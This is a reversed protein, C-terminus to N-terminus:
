TVPILSSIDVNISMSCIMDFVTDTIASRVSTALRVVACHDLIFFFDAFILSNNNQELVRDFECTHKGHDFVLLSCFIFHITQM